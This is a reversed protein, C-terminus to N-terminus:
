RTAHTWGAYGPRVMAGQRYPFRVGGTEDKTREVWLHQGCACRNFGQFPYWQDKGCCECKVACRVWDNRM